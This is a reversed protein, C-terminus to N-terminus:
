HIENILKLPNDEDELGKTESSPYVESELNLREVLISHSHEDDHIIKSGAKIHSGYAEWTSKKSPKSTGTAILILNGKDDKACAVGIKNKSIGRLKKGDKIVEKSKIVPLYTEDLVITGQLVVNNQIGKLIRFVKILWYKGTSSANRNDYASSRISHFEFLHLLYEIWESIPIKRSDFITNSLPNFGVGCEACEYRQIGIDNTGNKHSHESGCWHCKTIPVSNIFAVENISATRHKAEYWELVTDQM